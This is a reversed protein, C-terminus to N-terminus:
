RARMLVLLEGKAAEFMLFCGLWLIGVLLTVIWGLGFFWISASSASTLTEVLDVFQPYLFASYIFLASGYVILFLSSVFFRKKDTINANTKFM